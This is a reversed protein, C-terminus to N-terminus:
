IYSRGNYNFKIGFYTQFINLNPCANFAPCLGDVSIVDSGVLITEDSGAHHIHYKLMITSPTHTTSKPLTFTMKPGDQNAFHPDNRALSIAHEPRNFPEWIFGALPCSPIASPHKLLLPAISAACSLHIGLILWCFGTISDGFDPYSVDFSSVVWGSSKLNSSFTKVSQGDKDPHVIAIVINLNRV